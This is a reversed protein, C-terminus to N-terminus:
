HQQTTDILTSLHVSYNKNQAMFNVVVSLEHVGASNITSGNVTAPTTTNPNWPDNRMTWTFQYPGVAENGNQVTQNWQQAVINETLVREGLRAAIAKRQAVEGALNATHLAEITVPVVIAMLMLAALVEALTFAREITRRNSHLKIRLKMRYGM